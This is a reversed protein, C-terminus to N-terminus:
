MIAEEYKFGLLLAAEQLPKSGMDALTAAVLATDRREKKVMMAAEEKALTSKRKGRSFYSQLTQLLKM